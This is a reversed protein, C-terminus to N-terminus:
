LTPAGEGLFLQEELKCLSLTIKSLGKCPIGTAWEEWMAQMSPYDMGTIEGLWGAPEGKLGPRVIKLRCSSDATLPFRLILAMMDQGLIFLQM